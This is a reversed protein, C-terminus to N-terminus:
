KKPAEKAPAKKKDDEEIKKDLIEKTVQAPLGDKFTMLNYQFQVFGVRNFTKDYIINTPTRLDKIFTKAYKMPKSITGPRDEDRFYVMVEGRDYHTFYLERQNGMCISSFGNQVEAQAKTLKPGIQYTKSEKKDDLNYEYLNNVKSSVILLSNKDGDYIMGSAGPIKLLPEVKREKSNELDTVKFIGGADSDTLYLAEDLRVISNLNKAGKIKIRGIQRPKKGEENKFIALSDLDALVLLDGWAAMGKPAHLKTKPFQTSIIIPNKFKKTEYFEFDEFSLISIHATGNDSNPHGDLSSIYYLGNVPNRYITHPRILSDSTNFFEVKRKEEKKEKKDAAMLPMLSVFLVTFLLKLKM